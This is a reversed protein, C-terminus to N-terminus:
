IARGSTAQTVNVTGVIGAGGASLRVVVQSNHPFSIGNGPLDVVRETTTVPYQRVVTGSPSEITLLGGTPNGSYVAQVQKITRVAGIGAAYTLVVATNAAATATDSASANYMSM